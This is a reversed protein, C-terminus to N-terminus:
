ALPRGLDLGMFIVQDREQFQPSAEGRDILDDVMARMDGTKPTVPVKAKPVHPSRIIKMGMFSSMPMISSPSVADRGWEMQLKRSLSESFFGIM